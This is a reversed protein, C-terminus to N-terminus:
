VLLKLPKHNEVHSRWLSEGYERISERTYFEGEIKLYQGGDSGDQAPIVPTLEFGLSAESM